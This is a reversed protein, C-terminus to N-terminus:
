IEWLQNTNIFDILGRHVPYAKFIQVLAFRTKNSSNNDMGHEVLDPDFIVSEGKALSIEHLEGEHRFKYIFDSDSTLATLMRLNYDEKDEAHTNNDDTHLPINHGPEQRHIRVRSTRLFYFYDVLKKVEPIQHYVQTLKFDDPNERPNSRYFDFVSGSESKIAIASVHGALDYDTHEQFKLKKLWDNNFTLITKPVLLM